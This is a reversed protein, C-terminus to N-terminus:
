SRGGGGRGGRCVRMYIVLAVVSRDLIVKCLSMIGNGVIVKSLAWARSVSVCPALAAGGTNSILYNESENELKVENAELGIGQIGM